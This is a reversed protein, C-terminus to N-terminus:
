DDASAGSRDCAFLAGPEGAAIYAEAGGRRFVRVRRRKHLARGAALAQLGVPDLLVASRRRGRVLRAAALASVARSVTEARLGLHSALGVRRSPDVTMEDRNRGSPTPDDAM